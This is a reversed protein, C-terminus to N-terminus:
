PSTIIMVPCLTGGGREGALQTAMATRVEKDIDQCLLRIADQIQVMDGGRIPQVTCLWSLLRCATTRLSSCQNAGSCQLAFETVSKVSAPDAAIAAVILAEVWQTMTGDMSLITKEIFPICSTVLFEADSM